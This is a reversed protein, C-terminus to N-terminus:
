DYLYPLYYDLKNSLQIIIGKRPIPIRNRGTPNKHTIENWNEGKMPSNWVWNKFELLVLSMSIQIYVCLLFVAEWIDIDKGRATSPIKFNTWGSCNLVGGHNSHTRHIRICRPAERRVTILYAPGMSSRILLNDLMTCPFLTIWLFTVWRKVEKNNHTM